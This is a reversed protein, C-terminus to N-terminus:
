VIRLRQLPTAERFLRWLVFIGVAGIVLAPIPLSLAPVAVDVAQLRLVFGPTEIDIPIAGATWDWLAHLVVALLFAGIVKRNIHFRGNIRERWLVGAVIATWTGHALPALLGRTLLVEGLVNLNGHSLLLFTFGYGMSELAAFGMGAAAGLVIGHLETAYERRRLLWVVGLLKASEEIVGVGLMAFIGAGRVVEEEFFNAALTGLVGGYVFTLAITTLPVDYLAGREYLFVVFTVPVLSAGLLLVTPVLNPNGTVALSKMDLYYLIFGALLVKWWWHQWLHVRAPWAVHFGCHACFRDDARLGSGCHPCTVAIATDPM